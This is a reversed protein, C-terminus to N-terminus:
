LQANDNVQIEESPVCCIVGIVLRTATMDATRMDACRNDREACNGLYACSRRDM